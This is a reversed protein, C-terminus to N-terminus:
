IFLTVGILLYYCSEYKQLEQSIDLIKNNNVSILDEHCDTSM